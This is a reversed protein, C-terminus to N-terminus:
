AIHHRALCLLVQIPEIPIGQPTTLRRYRSLAPFAISHKPRTRPAWCIALESSGPPGVTAGSRLPSRDRSEDSLFLSPVDILSM